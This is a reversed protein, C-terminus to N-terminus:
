QVGAAFHAAIGGHLLDIGAHLWRAFRVPRGLIEVLDDGGAHNIADIGRDFMDLAVAGMVGVRDDGGVPSRRLFKEILDIGRDHQVVGRRLEGVAALEAKAGLDADGGALQV